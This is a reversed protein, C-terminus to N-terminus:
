GITAFSPTCSNFVGHICRRAWPLPHPRSSTCVEYHHLSIIDVASNQEIMMDLWQDQTDTGWYGTGGGGVACAGGKPGPGGSMPCHEQHWQTSRGASFGSSIPRVPDIDRIIKVLASTYMVMQATNFCQKTGTKQTPGCWPPPLNLKLNLENGLEWFLVQPL